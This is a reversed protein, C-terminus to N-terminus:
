GVKGEEHCIGLQTGIDGHQIEIVKNISSMLDTTQSSIRTDCSTSRELILAVLFKTM